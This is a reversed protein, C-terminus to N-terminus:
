YPCTINLPAGTTKGGGMAGSVLLRYTHGATLGTVTASIVTGSVTAAPTSVTQGTLTDTLIATAATLVDGTDMDQVMDIGYIRTETTYQVQWPAAGTM